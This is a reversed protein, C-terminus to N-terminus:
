IWDKSMKKKLKTKPLVELEMADSNLANIIPCTPVLILGAPDRHVTNNSINPPTPQCEWPDAPQPANHRIWPDSSSSSSPHAMTYNTTELLIGFPFTPAVDLVQRLATTAPPHYLASTSPLPVSATTNNSTVATIHFYTPCTVNSTVATIHFYSPRAVNSTVPKIHFYTPCNVYYFTVATIHLLLCLVSSPRKIM